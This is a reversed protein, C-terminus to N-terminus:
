SIWNSDYESLSDSACLLFGLSTISAVCQAARWFGATEATCSDLPIAVEEASFLSGCLGAEM